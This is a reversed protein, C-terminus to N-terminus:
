QFTLNKCSIKFGSRKEKSKVFVMETISVYQKNGLLIIGIGVRVNLKPGYTYNAFAKNGPVLCDWILRDHIFTYLKIAYAAVSMLMKKKIKFKKSKKELLCNKYVNLLM